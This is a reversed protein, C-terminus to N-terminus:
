VLLITPLTLHTYSVTAVTIEATCTGGTFTARPAAVMAGSSPAAVVSAAAIPYWTSVTQNSETGNDVLLSGGDGTEEGTAPRGQSGSRTGFTNGSVTTLGNRSLRISSEYGDFYNDTISLGSPVTGTRTLGDWSIAITQGSTARVFDNRSIRNEGSLTGPPLTVFAYEDGTGNGVSNLFQNGSINLNSLRVGTTSNNSFKFATAGNLNRM